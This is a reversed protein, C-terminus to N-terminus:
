KPILRITWESLFRVVHQESPGLSDTTPHLVTPPTPPTQPLVPPPPPPHMVAQALQALLQLHLAKENATAPHL